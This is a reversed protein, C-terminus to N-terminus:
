LAKVADSIKKSLNDFAKDFSLLSVMIGVSVIGAIMAYEIATSGREDHLFARFHSMHSM